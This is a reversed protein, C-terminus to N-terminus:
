ETSILEYWGWSVAESSDLSVNSIAANRGDLDKGGAM